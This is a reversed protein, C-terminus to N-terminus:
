KKAFEEFFLGGKNENKLNIRTYYKKNKLFLIIGRRRGM